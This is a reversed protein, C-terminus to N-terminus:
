VRALGFGAGVGGLFLGLALVGVLRAQLGVPVGWWSCLWVFSQVGVLWVLGSVMVLGVLGVLFGAQEDLQDQLEWAWAPGRKSM